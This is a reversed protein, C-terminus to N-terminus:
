ATTVAEKTPSPSTEVFNKENLRDYWTFKLIISTVVVVAFTIAAAKFNWLVIYIPLPVLATQWIIGIV